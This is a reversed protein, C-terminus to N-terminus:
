EHIVWHHFTETSPSGFYRQEYISTHTTSRGRRVTRRPAGSADDNVAHGTVVGILPRRYRWGLVIHRQKTGNRYKARYALVPVKVHHGNQMCKVTGWLRLRAISRTRRHPRLQVFVIVKTSEIFHLLSTIIFTLWHPETVVLLMCLEQAIMLFCPRANQLADILFFKGQVGHIQVFGHNLRTADLHFLVVTLRDLHYRRRLLVFFSVLSSIHVGLRICVFLLWRWPRYLATGYPLTSMGLFVRRRLQNLLIM